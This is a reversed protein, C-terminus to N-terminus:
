GTTGFEVNVNREKEATRIGVLQLADQLQVDVIRKADIEALEAQKHNEAVVIRSERDIRSKEKDMINQIVLSGREDRIDMFEISKAPIVGWENIQETVEATFQESLESRSEMIHELFAIFLSLVPILLILGVVFLSTLMKQNGFLTTAPSPNSGVIDLNHTQHSLGSTLGAINASSSLM